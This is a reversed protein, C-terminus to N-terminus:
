IRNLVSQFRFIFAEQNMLIRFGEDGDSVKFEVRKLINEGYRLGGEMSLRVWSMVFCMKMEGKRCCVALIDVKLRGFVLTDTFSTSSRESCCSRSNGAKLTGRVEGTREAEDWILMVLVPEVSELVVEGELLGEWGM